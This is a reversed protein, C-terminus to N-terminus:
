RELSCRFTRARQLLFLDFHHRYYKCILFIYNISLVCLFITLLTRNISTHPTPDREVGGPSLGDVWLVQYM